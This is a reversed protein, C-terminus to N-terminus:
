ERLIYRIPWALQDEQAGQGQYLPLQLYSEIVVTELFCQDVRENPGKNWESM